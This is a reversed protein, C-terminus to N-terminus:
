RRKEVQKKEELNGTLNYLIPEVALLGLLGWFLWSSGFFGHLGHQAQGSVLFTLSSQTM